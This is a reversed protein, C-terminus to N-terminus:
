QWKYGVGWVTKIPQVGSAALKARINKIHTAVASSDGEADFGFVSEYIQEKTFVQGRNQALYECIAYEGKTLPVPAGGVLATKASLDFRVDGLAILTHHERSERRLHATVRARLESIRFPKMLYDDAGLGLGHLIDKEQSKASLFLIPCDVLDRIRRCFAFGDTEPMMVDLLILDYYTLTKDEIRDAANEVSVIHGDKELGAKIVDLIVRDDDVALIRAM